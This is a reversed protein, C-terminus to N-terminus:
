SMMRNIAADLQQAASSFGLALLVIEWVLTVATLVVFTTVDCSSLTPRSEEEPGIEYRPSGVANSLISLDSAPGAHKRRRWSRDHQTEVIEVWLMAGLVLLLLLIGGTMVPHKFGLIVFNVMVQQLLWETSSVIDHWM